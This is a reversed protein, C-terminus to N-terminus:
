CRREKSPELRCAHVGHSCRASGLSALSAGLPPMGRPSACPPMEGIAPENLGHRGLRLEKRSGRVHLNVEVPGVFLEKRHRFDWVPATFTIADDEAIPLAPPRWRPRGLRGVRSRALRQSRGPDSPRDKPQRKRRPSLQVPGWPRIGICTSHGGPAPRHCGVSSSEVCQYAHVVGCLEASPYTGAAEISGSMGDLERNRIPAREM